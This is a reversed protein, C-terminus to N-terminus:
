KTRRQLEDREGWRGKKKKEGRERKRMRRGKMKGKWRRGQEKIGIKRGEWRVREMRGGVVREGSRLGSTGEERGEGRWDKRGLWNRKRKM